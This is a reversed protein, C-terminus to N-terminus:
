TKYARRVRTKVSFFFSAQKSGCHPFAFTAFAALGSIGGSETRSSPLTTKLSQSYLVKFYAQTKLKSALVQLTTTTM